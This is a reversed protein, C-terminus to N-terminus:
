REFRYHNLVCSQKIDWQYLSGDYTRLWVTDEFWEIEIISASQTFGTEILNAKDWIYLINTGIALREGTPSWSVSSLFYNFEDIDFRYSENNETSIGIISTNNILAVLDNQNSWDTLYGILSSV